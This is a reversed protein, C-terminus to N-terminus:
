AYGVSGGRGLALAGCFTARAVVLTFLDKPETLLEKFVDLSLSELMEASFLGSGFIHFPLSHTAADSASLGSGDISSAFSFAREIHSADIPVFAAGAGGVLTEVAGIPTEVAGVPTEVAVVPTEVAGVPIEQVFPMTELSIELVLGNAGRSRFTSLFGVAWTFVENANAHFSNTSSADSRALAVVHTRAFPNSCLARGAPYTQM